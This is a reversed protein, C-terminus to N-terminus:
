EKATPEDAKEAGDGSPSAPGNPKPFLAQNVAPIMVEAFELAVNESIPQNRDPMSATFYMKYLAPNNGFAVRQRDPAVWQQEDKTNPNWAWFVRVLPGGGGLSQEQRFRATFFTAEQQEGEEGAVEIKRKQKSGDQAFGQAPYCIDPTHRSIDRSHGVILWLDVSAGTESNVYKRSVHSVAGAQNLTEEKVKEDTGVWPGVETPVEKFRKGFEEATVSSSRFRDSYISEWFTLTAILVVTVAVPVYLRLM